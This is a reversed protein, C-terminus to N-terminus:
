PSPDGSPPALVVRKPASARLLARVVLVAPIWFPCFVLLWTAVVTVARAASGFSTTAQAWTQGLWNKDAPVAHPVAEQGLTLEVTSLAALGGITKRQAAMSEVESRIKELEDQLRLTSDLSRAQKLLSRYTEEQASKTKLRADLDVIQATVDESKVSKSLRTGLAEFEVLARDFAGVPVRLTVILMPRDSALDTSNASDVYGRLRAVIANVKREAEEVNPVRVDLSAERIVERQPVFVAPHLRAGGPVPTAAGSEEVLSRDGNMQAMKRASRASTKKAAEKSQAFVPFLVAALVALVLLVVLTLGLTSLYNKHTPKM